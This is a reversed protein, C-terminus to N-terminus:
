QKLTTYFSSTYAVSSSDRPRLVLGQPPPRTGPAPPPPRTGPASSSDWPRPASSSDRPCLVLKQPPPRTGPVSSSDRPRLVLGQPPPRTGPASSSDRPRLALGQPKESNMQSPVVTWNKLSKKIRFVLRESNRKDTVQSRWNKPRNQKKTTGKQEM